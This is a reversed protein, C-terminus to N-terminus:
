PAYSTYWRLDHTYSWGRSNALGEFTGIQGYIIHVTNLDILCERRLIECHLLFQPQIAVLRVHITTADRDAMWQSCTASTQGDRQHILEPAIMQLVAFCRQANTTSFTHIRDDLVNRPSPLR